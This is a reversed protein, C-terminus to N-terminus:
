QSQEDFTAPASLFAAARGATLIGETELGQLFNVVEPSKLRVTERNATMERFLARKASARQKAPPDSFNIQSAIYIDARENATFRDWFAAVTIEFKGLRDPQPSVLVPSNM